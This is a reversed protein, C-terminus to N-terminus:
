GVVICLRRWSKFFDEETIVQNAGHSPDLQAPDHYEFGRSTVGILLIIHPSGEPKFDKRVSALIVKGRTLEEKIKKVGYHALNEETHPNRSRFEEQYAPIGHNHAVLVLGTHSWGISEQYAGEITLAEKILDSITLRSSSRAALAMQLCVIGCSRDRWDAPVSEDYQSYFHVNHM